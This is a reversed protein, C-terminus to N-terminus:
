VPPHSDISYGISKSFGTLPRVMPAIILRWKFFDRKSDPKIKHCSFLWLHNISSSASLKPDIQLLSFSNFLAAPQKTFNIFRILTVAVAFTSCIFGACLAKITLCPSPDFRSRAARSAIWLIRTSGRNLPSRVFFMRGICIVSCTYLSYPSSYTNQKNTPPNFHLPVIVINESLGQSNM